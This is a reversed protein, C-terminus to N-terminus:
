EEFKEVLCKILVFDVKFDFKNVFWYGDKIFWRLEVVGYICVSRFYFGTCRFYFFGEYYNWKVFRIKSQLDFVDQVLRFIEGFVGLVRILIAWFYEDFSYIDEFWVFFDKVFFINFVYKVFARSLVFYVSGVFIEIDYFFADKFVNTRVFFKVYEYFLQRFEYRYTFREIKSYFFKVTELM